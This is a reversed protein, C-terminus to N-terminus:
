LGASWSVSLAGGSLRQVLFRSAAIFM